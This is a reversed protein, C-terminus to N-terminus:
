TVRPARKKKEDGKKKMEIQRLYYAPSRENTIQVQGAPRTEPNTELIVAAIAAAIVEDDFGSGSAEMGGTKTYVFTSMEFITNFHQIDMKGQRFLRILCGIAVLKSQASTQWGYRDQMIEPNNASTSVKERLYLNPYNLRQLAKITTLGMNNEEPVVLAKNYWHGLIDLVCGYLDPDVHMRLVAAQKGTYRNYIHAVSYDGEKKGEENSKEIGMSVDASILYKEGPIPAEYVWLHGDRTRIPLRETYPRKRRKWDEYSEPFKPTQFAPVYYRQPPEQEDRLKLRDYAKKIASKLFVTRGAAIFAETDNAPMEQKWMEVDGNYKTDITHRRYALQEDDCGAERLAPEDVLGEPDAHFDELKAGRIRYDRDIYWPLFVSRYGDYKKGSARAEAELKKAKWYKTYFEGGIGNATSEWVIWSGPASAFGGTLGVLNKAADTWFAIETLHLRQYTGGRGTGGHKAVDIELGSRHPPAFVVEQRNSFTFPYMNITEDRFIRTRDFVKDAAGNEQAVVLCKINPEELLGRFFLAQVVLSIGLQRAKLIVLQVKGTEKIQQRIISAIIIQAQNLKFRVLKSDKTVIKLFRYCWEEDSLHKHAAWFAKAKAYQQQREVERWTLRKGSPHEGTPDEIYMSSPVEEVGEDFLDRAAQDFYRDFSDGSEDEGFNSTM